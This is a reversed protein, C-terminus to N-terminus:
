IKLKAVFEQTNLKYKEAAKDVFVENDNTSKLISCGAGIINSKGIVIENRLTANVGIFSFEGIRTYGSIVVHSTIFCHDEIIADHGIHNGSWMIVNNGITVGPQIVQGEFIFTNEGIPGDEEIRILHPSVFTALKYGKDKAEYYKKARLQNCQKYGLAVFMEYEDPPYLTEVDEFAVVPMGSFVDKDLYAKDVCFAVPEYESYKAFYMKILEAFRGLGVIVLRKSKM